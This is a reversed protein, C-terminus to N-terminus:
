PRICLCSEAIKPRRALRKLTRVRPNMKTLIEKPFTTITTIPKWASFYFILIVSYTAFRKLFNFKSALSCIPSNAPVQLSLHPRITGTVWINVSTKLYIWIGSKRVFWGGFDKITLPWLDQSVSLNLKACQCNKKKLFFFFFSCIFALVKTLYALSATLISLLTITIQWLLAIGNTKKFIVIM